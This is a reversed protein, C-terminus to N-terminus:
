AISRKVFGSFSLNQIKEFIQIIIKLVFTKNQYDFMIKLKIISLDLNFLRM